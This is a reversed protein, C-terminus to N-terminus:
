LTVAMLFGVGALLVGVAAILITAYAVVRERSEEVALESGGYVFSYALAALALAAVAEFAIYTTGGGAVFNGFALMGNGLGLVFLAYGFRRELTMGM